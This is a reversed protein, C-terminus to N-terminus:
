KAYMALANAVRSPMPSVASGCYEMRLSVSGYMERRMRVSGEGRVAPARSVKTNPLASASAFARTSSASRTPVSISPARRYAAAASMRAMSRSSTDPEMPRASRAASSSILRSISSVGADRSSISCSTSTIPADDRCSHALSRSVDPRSCCRESRPTSTSGSPSKRAEVSTMLSARSTAESRAACFIAARAESSKSCSTDTPPRGGEESLRVTSWRSSM